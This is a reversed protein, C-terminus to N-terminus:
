LKIIIYNKKSLYIKVYGGFPLSNLIFDTGKWRFLKKVRPPFGIGFEDVRIGFYKAALLHGLEHVIVLASLIILFILISM